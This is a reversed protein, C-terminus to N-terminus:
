GITLLGAGYVVTDASVLHSALIVVRVWCYCPAGGGLKLILLPWPSVIFEVKVLQHGGVGM